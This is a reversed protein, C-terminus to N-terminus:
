PLARLADVVSPLLAKRAGEDSGERLNAYLVLVFSGVNHRRALGSRSQMAHEWSGFPGANTVERIWISWQTADLTGRLAVALVPRALRESEGFIYFHDGAPAVKAAVATLMRRHETPVTAPNLALQLLLDAGHAVGHRWGENAVFGRYDRASELYRVAADILGVREDSGLFAHLRDVRAIESLALAAFPQAFGAEDQAGPALQPVLARLLAHLTSESLEGARMWASLGDFAIGDRLAPDSDALCDDLSLALSNRRVPDDIAFKAAKLAHLSELTWDAPPCSAVADNFTVACAISWGLAAVTRSPFYRSWRSDTSRPAASKRNMPKMM